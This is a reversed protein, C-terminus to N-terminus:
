GDLGCRPSFCSSFLLHEVLRQAPSPWPAPLRGTLSRIRAARRGCRRRFPRPLVCYCARGPMRMRRFVPKEIRLFIGAADSGRLGRLKPHPHIRHGAVLLVLRILGKAARKRGWGTGSIGEGCLRRRGKALGRLLRRTLRAGRRSAHRRSLFSAGEAPGLFVHSPDLLSARPTPLEGWFGAGTVASMEKVDVRWRPGVCLTSPAGPLSMPSAHCNDAFPIGGRPRRQGPPRQQAAVDIM